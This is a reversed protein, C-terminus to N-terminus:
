AALRALLVDLSPANPAHLHVSFLDRDAGTRELTFAQAGYLETMFRELEPRVALWTEETNPAALRDNVRLLLEETAFLLKGKLSPEKELLAAANLARQIASRLRQKPEPAERKHSYLLGRRGNSEDLYYDAAHGVLLVGPGQPVHAYDVVDILLEDLRRERIWSHFVPVFAHLAVEPAPRAFVKVQLKAFEM